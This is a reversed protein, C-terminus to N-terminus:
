RDMYEGKMPRKMHPPVRLKDMMTAEFIGDDRRGIARVHDGVSIDDYVDSDSIPVNIMMGRPTEIVVFDDSVSEVRGVVWNHGGFEPKSLLPGIAHDRHLDELVVAYGVGAGALVVVAIVGSSLVLFNKKYSFDFRKLLWLGVGIGAVAVILSPWPFISFFPGIGPRGFRLFEFPMFLQLQVAGRIMFLLAFLVGAAAGVGLATSALVFYVKPRMRVNEDHITGMVDDAMNHKRLDDNM